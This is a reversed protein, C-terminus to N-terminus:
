VFFILKGSFAAGLRGRTKRAIDPGSNTAPEPDSTSPLYVETSVVGGCDNEENLLEGGACSNLGLARNDTSEKFEAPEVELERDRL